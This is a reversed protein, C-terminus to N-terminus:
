GHQGYMSWQINDVKISHIGRTNIRNSRIDCERGNICKRIRIGNDMSGNRCKTYKRSIDSDYCM